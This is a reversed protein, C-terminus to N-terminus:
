LRALLVQEGCSTVDRVGSFGLATLCSRIEETERTSRSLRIALLGHRRLGAAAQRLLGPLALSTVDPILVVDALGAEVRCGPLRSEARRCESM